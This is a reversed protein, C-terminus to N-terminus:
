RWADRMFRAAEPLRTTAPALCRAVMEVVEHPAVRAETTLKELLSRPLETEDPPPPEFRARLEVWWAEKSVQSRWWAAWRVLTRKPVAATESAEQWTATAQAWASAVVVVAELYVRRGLFRVSPPLSRKRCGRVGCCLSYRLPYAEGERAIAGGRPKRGYNAMHLPGQCRRCGEARVVLALRLDVAALAAFVKGVLGLEALM